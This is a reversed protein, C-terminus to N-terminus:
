CRRCRLCGVIYNQRERRELVDKWEVLDDLSLKGLDKGCELINIASSIIKSDFVSLAAGQAILVNFPGFAKNEYLCTTALTLM